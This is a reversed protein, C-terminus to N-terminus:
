WHFTGPSKRSDPLIKRIDACFGCLKQRRCFRHFRCCAISLLGETSRHASQATGAAGTVLSIARRGALGIRLDEAGAFAPAAVTEM